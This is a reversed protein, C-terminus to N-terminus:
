LMYRLLSAGRNALKLDRLVVSRTQVMVSATVGFCSELCSTESDRETM